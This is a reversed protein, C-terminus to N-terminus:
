IWDLGHYTKCLYRFTLAFGLKFVKNKWKDKDFRMRDERLLSLCLAAMKNTRKVYKQINCEREAPFGRRM